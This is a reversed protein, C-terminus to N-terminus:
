ELTGGKEDQPVSDSILECLQATGMYSIIKDPEVGIPSIINGPTGSSPALPLGGICFYV